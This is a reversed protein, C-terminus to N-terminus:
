ARLSWQIASRSSMNSGRIADSHAEVSDRIERYVVRSDHGPAEGAPFLLLSCEHEQALQALTRGVMSLDHTLAIAESVQFLLYKERTPKFSFDDPMSHVLDPALRRKSFQLERVAEYSM